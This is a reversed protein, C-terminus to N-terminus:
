NNKKDFYDELTKIILSSNNLKLCSFADYLYGKLLLKFADDKSIARSSLYFLEEPDLQGVTAGHAASVDDAEVELEPKTNIEAYESMLLNNNLYQSDVKQADQAIYIRGNVNVKCKEKLQGKVFQLSEGSPRLHNVTSKIDIQEKGRGIYAYTLKSQTKEGLVNVRQNFRNLQSGMTLAASFFKSKDFMQINNDILYTSGASPNIKISFDMHANRKLEFNLVADIFVDSPSTFDLEFEVAADPEVKVVIRPTSLQKELSSELEINKIKIKIKNKTQAKNVKLCVPREVYASNLAEVFDKDQEVVKPESHKNDSFSAFEIGSQKFYKDSAEPVFHGDFLYLQDETFECEINNLYQLCLDLGPTPKWVYDSKMLHNINTYKWQEDSRTPWTQASVAKYGELNLEQISGVRKSAKINDQYNCLLNNM